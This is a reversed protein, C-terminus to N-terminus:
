LWVAREKEEVVISEAPHDALNAHRCCSCRSPLCGSAGHPCKNWTRSWSLAAMGRLIRTVEAGADSTDTRCGEGMQQVAKNTVCGEGMQQVAKNTVGGEGMQQVAKNTVCGEGLQQVAKNTM